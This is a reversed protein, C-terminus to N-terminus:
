WATGIVKGVLEYGDAATVKATVFDGSKLNKGKVRVECDIDPSDTTTRGCHHL